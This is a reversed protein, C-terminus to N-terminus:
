SGPSAPLDAPPREAHRWISRLSDYAQAAATRDGAAEAARALGLLSATRRPARELAAAFALHAEETRGLELLVEGLLESTPKVLAPPGFQFPMEAEAEAAARLLALARETEGGALLLLAELEQGEIALEREEDADASRRIEEMERALEAARATEGSELAALATTFRHNHRALSSASLDGDMDLASGRWDGADILYRARMRGFYAQEGVTTGGEAILEHCAELVENAEAFRGQQLYGYELWSAYHGCVNPPRGLEARRADQVARAKLNADVVEDWMGLSVFIHSTMHQAHSADPAIRAYVRAARLGLPAHIPDDYSHILYHAAGPHLPNAAFVEEVIAAARMYISFDRGDHATGLVALAHFSAAEHDEPHAERLRRMADLYDFDRGEKDGDGFFLIEVAELYGRERATRAKALREEGTAGLRELAAQGLGQQQRLWIPHNHTMAEGWYALAFDPDIESAQRFALAADEYEFNHLLLVGELFAGQAEEAGSNPFDIKGLLKRESGISPVALAAGLAVVLLSKRTIRLAV